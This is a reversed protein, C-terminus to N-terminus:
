TELAEKPDIRPFLPPGKRVRTGPRLQGWRAIDDLRVAELTGPDLGLQDWIRQPTHPLFPLLLAGVARLTELLNYLVTDLRARSGPDKALSWPANDEIYHNGQNVLRWVAELAQPIQLDDMAREVEPVVEALLGRLLGDDQDAVPRPVAADSFKEVMTLTRYLLNGLDNALDVNTRNVLAEESYRGDAGFPIERLLFYRVADVGYKDILVHPDIVNGKSKSMKGSDLVLWGHGFVRRPLPLGLAMLLIPWIIAHFRMIEKGVLHVDAPWFEEFLKRREPDESAYGIASIYNTLADIWVYVVHDPDFPVPVGWAFTTRSVCLDELGQKIFSVMENRRSPPQIFDPNEEIHRLLRDQYKSLRFFYSEEKLRSVERGCDPCRGDVLRSELWFTECPTCYWGEYESKYIDGQEHFRRFVEQVVRKHRSETTRIFDDYSIELREWLRLIGAVVRDVFEQPHVGAARAAEENKSGHEDTGTLFFTRRGRLRNFRALADAAVTSYAHGIHLDSNAYYIPTTIYFTQRDTGTM